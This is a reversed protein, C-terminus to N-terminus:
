PIQGALVEAAAIVTEQHAYLDHGGQVDLFSAYPDTIRTESQALEEIVAHAYFPVLPPSYGGEHCFVVRDECLEGALALITQTMTRYTTSSIMMRGLPDTAGADFGCPVVILEPRFRRLAPAVVREMVALYPARGCGPPLPVNINAGVGDGEGVDEIAGSDLPFCNDQHISITLVNPDAYFAQQTGNGHHVDWDVVAVRGVGHSVRARLIALSANALLCFGKGIDREAHHGPPRVLAYANTVRDDLVADFAAMVGGASLCAIEYSGPGFPTTMGGDGGREDSLTKIRSLYDKTHFRLLDEESAEFAPIATLEDLLGTVATLNKIRRKSEPSEAHEDPQILGGSPMWLGAHGTDHWLYKEHHVFGTSM